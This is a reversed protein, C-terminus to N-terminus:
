FDHTGGFDLNYDEFICVIEEVMEFDSLETNQIVKQVESLVTIATTNAIENLNFELHKNLTRAILNTLEKSVLEARIDM